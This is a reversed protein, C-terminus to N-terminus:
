VASGVHLSTKCAALVQRCARSTVKEEAERKAEEAAVQAARAAAEVEALQEVARDAKSRKTNQFVDYM